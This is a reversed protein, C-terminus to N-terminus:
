EMRGLSGQQGGAARVRGSASHDPRTVPAKKNPDTASVAPPPGDTARRILEVPWIEQLQQAPTGELLALLMEALHHGAPGVSQGMTTLPPDSVRGIALDDFGVISLDDPIRIGLEKAARMAGLAIRDTACVLATPRVTAQLIASALAAASMEDIAGHRVITEDPQLGQERLGADFGKFRDAAFYRELPAGVFGIRTHGLSALHAVAASFASAGDTDLYAYPRSEDVRGHLVFPFGRDLLYSVREDHVNTRAVIMADVRKHEVFRKLARMEAAGPEATTVLLDLDAAALREGISTILEIFFPDDFHGPGTPLIMGVAEVRGMALKRATASPTYGYRAAAERVRERTVPSVDSYGALARSVTTKSLGLTDALQRLNL